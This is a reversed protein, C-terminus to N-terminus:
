RSGRPGGSKDTTKAPINHTTNEATTLFYSNFADPNIRTPKINEKNKGQKRTEVGIINWATKLKMTHNLLNIKVALDKKRM